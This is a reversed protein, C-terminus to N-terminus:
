NTETEHNDCSSKPWVTPENNARNGSSDYIVKSPDHCDGSKNGFNHKQFHKCTNCFPGSM